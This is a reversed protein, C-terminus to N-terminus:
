GNENVILLTSLYIDFITSTFSFDRKMPSSKVTFSQYRELANVNELEFRNDPLPHSDEFPPIEFFIGGSKATSLYIPNIGGFSQYNAGSKEFGWINPWM